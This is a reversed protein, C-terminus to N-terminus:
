KVVTFKRSAALQNKTDFLNFVYNGKEYNNVAFTDSANKLSFEDVLRCQLDFVRATYGIMHNDVSVNVVNSAPNPYLKLADDADLHMVGTPLGTFKLDDVWLKSGQNSVGGVILISFTDPTTTSTYQVTDKFNYWNGGTSSAAFGGVAITDRSSTGANWKTFLYVWIMTDAGAPVFKLSGEISFPRQSLAVGKAGPFGGALTVAGNGLVGPIAGIGPVTDTVLKASATGAVVNAPTTDRFVFQNVPSLLLDETIGWGTPKQLGTGTWTEFGGNAIQAQLLGFCFLLTLMLTFRIKM